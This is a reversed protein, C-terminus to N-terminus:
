SHKHDFRNTWCKAQGSDMKQLASYLTNMKLKAEMWYEELALKLYKYPFKTVDGDLLSNDEGVILDDKEHVKIREIDMTQVPKEDGGEVNEDNGEEEQEDDDDECEKDDDANQKEGNLKEAAVKEKQRKRKGKREVRVDEHLTGAASEKAKLNESGWLQLRLQHLTREYESSEPRLEPEEPVHVSFPPNKCKNKTLTVCKNNKETNPATNYAGRQFRDAQFPLLGANQRQITSCWDATRVPTTERKTPM